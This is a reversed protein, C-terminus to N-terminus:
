LGSKERVSSSNSLMSSKKKTKLLKIKTAGISCDNM